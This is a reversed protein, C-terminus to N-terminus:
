IILALISILIFLFATVFTLKFVFGELGRRSFTTLGGWVRGFGVGKVQILILLTLILSIAAQLIKITM